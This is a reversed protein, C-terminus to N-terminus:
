RGQEVTVLGFSDDLKVTVHNGDADVVHAEYADGEADTEVREVTGGPVAELAAATAKEADSGTLLTETIGNAQHGGQSPDHAEAGPAAPTDATSSSDDTATTATTDSSPNTEAGASGILTAGVAGGLLTAGVLLGGLAVKRIPNVTRDM